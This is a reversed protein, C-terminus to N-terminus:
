SYYLSTPRLPLLILGAAVLEGSLGAAYAAGDGETPRAAEANWDCATIHRKERHIAFTESIFKLFTLFATNHNRQNM